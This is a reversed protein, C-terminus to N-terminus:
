GRHNGPTTMGTITGEMCLFSCPRHGQQRLPVAALIAGWFGAEKHECLPTAGGDPSWLQDTHGIPYLPFSPIDSALNPQLLSHSRYQTRREGSKGEGRERRDSQPFGAAVHFPCEPPCHLPWKTLGVLSWMPSCAQFHVTWGWTHRSLIAARALLRVAVKHSVM